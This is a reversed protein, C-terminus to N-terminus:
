ADRFKIYEADTLGQGEAIRHEAMSMTPGKQTTVPKTSAKGTIITAPVEGRIEARLEALLEARLAEKDIMDDGGILERTAKYVFELDTTRRKAAENIVVTEDFDPYKAKLTSLTKDLENSAIQAELDHIRKSQVNAADIVAGDGGAEKLKEM